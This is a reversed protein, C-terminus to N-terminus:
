GTPRVSGYGAAAEHRTKAVNREFYPDTPNESDRSTKRLMEVTLESVDAVNLHAGTAAPGIGVSVMGARHIAEIGSAADEVGICNWPLLRLRQAAIYFGQPSPKSQTVCSGDVLADVHQSLSTRQMVVPANRSASAVAVKVGAARLATLLEISGPLVDRPTMEGILEVYRANKSACQAELQPDPPLPRDNHRYIRKLSDTRGVGRLQHNVEEDFALGLRDALEKWALYHFHDTRVLVGDLDFIVGDLTQDLWAASHDFTQSVGPPFSRDEGAVRLSVEEEGHNTVAFRDPEVHVEIKQGRTRFRYRLSRWHTPLRPEIAVGERGVTLGGYGHVVALWIGGEGAGHIGHRTNGTADKLDIGAACEFYRRSDRQRGLRTALIAHTCLSLSSTQNCLPAYQRYCAALVDRDFADPLAQFLLLTDAQKSTKDKPQKDDARAYPEPADGFGEFQAMVGGELVPVHLRDAIEKWRAALGEDFGTEALMEKLRYAAIAQSTVSLEEQLGELERVREVSLLRNEQRADRLRWSELDMYDERLEEEFRACNEMRQAYDTGDLWAAGPGYTQQLTNVLRLTQRLVHRVMLNTYANDDALPHTEDPGCVRLIHYKGDPGKAARSAWYKCLEILVELGHALMTEQDGTLAYYHLIGWVVAANLHVQQYLFGGLVPPEELGSDYSQWPFRAGAYGDQAALKRAATLRKARYLVHNRALHPAVAALLPLQFMEMDWFVAGRYWDGSLNKAGISSDGGDDPAAIRTSWLAFRVARQAQEDGEIEVDGDQWFERWGAGVRRFDDYEVHEAIDRFFARSDALATEREVQPVGYTRHGSMACNKGFSYTHASPGGKPLRFTAAAMGDSTSFSVPLEPGGIQRVDANCQVMVEGQPSHLTVSLMDPEAQLWAIESLRLGYGDCNPLEGAKYYKAPHNRVDGDIGLVVEVEGDGSVRTVDLRQLLVNARSLLAFREERVEVAASGAEFRATRYLIGEKMNLTRHSEVCAPRHGDIRLFAVLWDPGCMLYNLGYGARTFVGAMYTGRFAGLGDEGLTGRTCLQGSGITFITSLFDPDESPLDSERILWAAEAKEDRRM